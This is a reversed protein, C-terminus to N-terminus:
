EVLTRMKMVIMVMLGVDKSLVSGNVQEGCTNQIRSSVEAPELGIDRALLDPYTLTKRAWGITGRGRPSKWFLATRYRAISSASSITVSIDTASRFRCRNNLRM